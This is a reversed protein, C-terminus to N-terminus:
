EVALSIGCELSGALASIEYMGKKVGKVNAAGTKFERGALLVEGSEADTVSLSFPSIANGVSDLLRIKLNAGSSMVEMDIRLSCGDGSKEFALKVPSDSRGDAGLARTAYALNPTAEFSFDPLVSDVWRAVNEIGARIDRGLSISVEALKKGINMNASANKRFERMCQSLLSDYKGSIEAYSREKPLDRLLDEQSFPLKVNNEM